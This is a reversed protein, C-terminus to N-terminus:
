RKEGNQMSEKEASEDQMIEKARKMEYFLLYANDGNM